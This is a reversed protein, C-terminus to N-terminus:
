SGLIMSGSALRDLSQVTAAQRNGWAWPGEVISIRPDGRSQTEYQWPSTANISWLVGDRVSRRRAHSSGYPNQSSVANVPFRVPNAENQPTSGNRM